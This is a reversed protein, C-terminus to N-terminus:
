PLYCRSIEAADRAKCRYGRAEEAFFYDAASLAAFLGSDCPTARNGDLQENDASRYLRRHGHDSLRDRYDNAREVLASM